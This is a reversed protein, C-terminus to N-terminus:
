DDKQWEEIAVCIFGVALLNAIGFFFVRWYHECWPALNFNIVAALGLLWAIIETSKKM